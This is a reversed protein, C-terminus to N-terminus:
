SPKPKRGDEVDVKTERVSDSVTRTEQEVDKRIVVEEIIQPTKSVVAEEDTEVVEVTKEQFADVDGGVASEPSSVPRREVSVTEHLLAVQEEVPREVVYARVRVAGQAVERKGVRLEERAIPIRVEDSPATARAPQDSSVGTTRQMNEPESTAPAAAATPISGPAWGQSRWESSRQDIDIAGNDEMIDIARDNEMESVRVTVVVGGRRIGERYTHLDEAPMFLRKLSEWWGEDRDPAQQSESTMPQQHREINGRPLGLTVLAEIARDAEAVNDFMAAITREGTRARDIYAQDM